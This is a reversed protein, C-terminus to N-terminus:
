ASYPQIEFLYRNSDPPVQCRKTGLGEKYSTQAYGYLEAYILARKGFGLLDLRCRSVTDFTTLTHPGQFNKNIETVSNL